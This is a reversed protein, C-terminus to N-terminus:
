IQETSKDTHLTVFATLASDLVTTSNKSAIQIRMGLRQIKIARNYKLKKIQINNM